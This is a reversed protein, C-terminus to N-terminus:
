EFSEGFNQELTEQLTENTRRLENVQRRVLATRTKEIALESNIESQEIFYFAVDNKNKEVGKHAFELKERAFRLEVPAHEGAGAKEAAEIGRQASEFIDPGPKATACSVLLLCLPTLLLPRMPSLRPKPTISNHSFM